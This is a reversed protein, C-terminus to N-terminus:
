PSSSWRSAPPTTAARMALFALLGLVALGVGGLAALRVPGFGRLQAILGGM